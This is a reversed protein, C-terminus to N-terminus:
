RLERQANPTEQYSCRQSSRKISYRWSFGRSEVYDYVKRRWTNTKPLVATASAISTRQKASLRLM